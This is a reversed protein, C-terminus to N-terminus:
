WPPQLLARRSPPRPLMPEEKVGDPPPLSPQEDLPTSRTRHLDLIRARGRATFADSSEGPRIRLANGFRVELKLSRSKLTEFLHPVLPDEGVWALERPTFRLAAPVVDVDLRRALGFIGRRFGLVSDGLSTTGEPFNLVSIGQELLRQARRLALAGSHPDARNVFVVGFASSAGGLAPWSSLERKALPALPLLAALLVPDLYSLHNAVVVCPDRPLPGEYVVEPAVARLVGLCTRHLAAVRGRDDRARRARVVGRVGHQVISAARTLALSAGPRLGPVGVGDVTDAASPADSM